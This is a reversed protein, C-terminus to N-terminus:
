ISGINVCLNLYSPVAEHAEYLLLEEGAGLCQTNLMSRGCVM